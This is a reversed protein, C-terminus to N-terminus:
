PRRAIFWQETARFIVPKKCRWCHPYSHAIEFDHYLHGSERLMAVVKPNAKFVTEGVLSAPAEDTYRGSADVPSLTPLGYRQGTQYDEAGHGPATHVLGTGDEVSVYNALVIPSERDLFSTAIAPTNSIRGKAAASKPSTPRRRRLGM